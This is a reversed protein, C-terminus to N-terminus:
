EGSGSVKEAESVGSGEVVTCKADDSVRGKCQEVHLVIIRLFLMTTGLHKHKRFHTDLTEIQILYTGSLYHNRSKTIRSWHSFYGSSNFPDNQDNLM